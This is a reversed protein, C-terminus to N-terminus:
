ILGDPHVMSEIDLASLDSVQNVNHHSALTLLPLLVGLSLSKSHVAESLALLGQM